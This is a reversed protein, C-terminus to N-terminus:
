RDFWRYQLALAIVDYDGGARVVFGKSWGLKASWGGGFPVSLTAGYRSNNQEDQSPVGNITTRGGSAHAGNVAIWLGPRFNYGVHAQTIYLPDQSRRKGGFFNDNDAYLWAGASGEVFWSGLPYSFGVEPKFAWRNTGTNVLRAPVYQGTPAIVSVSAGATLGPERQAFEKPTQAPNGYLNVALRVRADGMGSRHVERAADFVEGSVQGRAYPLVAGLSAARGALAFTHAYGV